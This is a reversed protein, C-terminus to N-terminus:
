CFTTASTVDHLSLGDFVKEVRGDGRVLRYHFGRKEMAKKLDVQKVKHGSDAIYAQRFDGANIHLNRGTSCRAAIFATLNDNEEVYTHFEQLMAAPQSGLGSRYWSVAGRVLWTLLQRQADDKRLRGDLTPDKLRHNPNTPDYPRRPDGPSTYVNRFPVVVVRRLMAEDDCNITPKTNCVLIPLHTATFTRYKKEHCDRGTISSQGTMQKITEENLVASADKEERVGIRKGLITLLHPSPGGEAQRRGTEFLLERPMTTWIPELLQQLIGILLSKSNSGSGTWIAWVQERAHGTIAYGLLRQMYGIVEVDGNFVDHFFADITPTPVDPEYDVALAISLGDYGRGKRLVGTSLEVVGNGVALLDPDKDLRGELDNDFALTEYTAMISSVNHAKQIYKLSARLTKIKDATEETKAVSALLPLIVQQAIAKIDQKILQRHTEQWVHDTFSMFRNTTTFRVERGQLRYVARLISCYPDDTQSAALLNQILRNAEWGFARSHCSTSYNKLVFANDVLIRACFNNSVHVSGCLPCTCQPNQLKYDVGGSRPWITGMVQSPGLKLLEAQVVTAFLDDTPVVPSLRQRKASPADTHRQNLLAILWAPAPRLDVAPCLPVVWRYSRPGDPHPVTSPQVIICGRDGRCDLTLGACKAANQASLLGAQLSKSLSFLYHRGGSATEATPPMDDGFGHQEVVLNGDRLGQELDKSKLQDVDVALVDSADGTVIALADDDKGIFSDLCTDRRAAQWAPKMFLRKRDAAVDFALRLGVVTYGAAHLRSAEAAITSMSPLGRGPLRYAADQLRGAKCCRMDCGRVIIRLLSSMTNAMAPM